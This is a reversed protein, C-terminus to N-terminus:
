QRIIYVTVKTEAYRDARESRERAKKSRYICNISLYNTFLPRNQGDIRSPDGRIRNSISITGTEQRIGVYMRDFPAPSYISRDHFLM